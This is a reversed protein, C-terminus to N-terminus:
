APIRWIAEVARGLTWGFVIAFGMVFQYGYKGPVDPEDAALVPGIKAGLIAIFLGGCVLALL